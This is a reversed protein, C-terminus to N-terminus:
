PKNSVSKRRGHWHWVLLFNDFIPQNLVQRWLVNHKMLYCSPAYMGTRFWFPGQWFNARKPAVDFIYKWQIIIPRSSSLPVTLVKFFLNCNLCLNKNLFPILRKFLHMKLPKPDVFIFTSTKNLFISIENIYLNYKQFTITYFM